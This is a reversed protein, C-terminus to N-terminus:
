PHPFEWPAAQGLAARARELVPQLDPVRALDRQEWRDSAIHYLEEQGNQQVIYHYGEVVISKMAGRSVSYWAPQNPVYSVESLVPSAPASADVNSEFHRRLSSGPFRRAENLGVLEEITAPVDRLTVAEPVVLGAPLRGPLTMILPVHLAPLYLGNGHSMYGHEGFEEGHDATVIVLTNQLLGRRELEAFLRGLEQDLFALAGDYANTLDRIEEPRHRHGTKIRRLQPEVEGFKRDFPPHPNYPEHGDFYNIFAFFPRDGPRALWNLLDASNDPAMLRRPAFYNGFVLNSLAVLTRGLVSSAILEGHRPGASKYHIFGQGLGWERGGYLHNTNFGATRYGRVRFHEALTTYSTDLPTTWDATMEGPYRGTFLSGHTPLTWPATSLALDFRVGRAALQELNPTTPREYGYVSLNAARVADLVILLVNPAGSAPAPQAVLARREQWSARLSATLAIVVVLLAAPWATSRLVRYFGNMRPWLLRSTQVGLGIALVMLAAWHIRPYTFLGTLFFLFACGAVLTQVARQGPRGRALLLIGASLILALLTDALPAQWLFARDLHVARELLLRAALRAAVESYGTMLGFWAGILLFGAPRQWAYREGDIASPQALRRQTEVSM